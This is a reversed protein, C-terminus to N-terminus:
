KWKKKVEKLEEFLLKYSEYRSLSIEHNRVAEKVACDPEDIHNCGHFRCSPYYPKFDIFYDKLEEKDIQDLYLSSFGPTDVVYSDKNFAILEAHRTTHKGRAIKKSIEGTELIVKNQFVNLLSSKGVGSPGAFVSTREYLEELLESLGVKEKASTLHVRYGAKKYIDKLQESEDRSLIDIKNFCVVAKIDEKEISILFRDLLNLNPKPRNVSFVVIVQDINSVCPRVLENHRPLIKAINAKMQEVQMAELVVNDGILPKVKQNRFIGKARCEFVGENPVHVYYFGGIGKIIKGNM